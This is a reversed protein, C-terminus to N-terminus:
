GAVTEVSKTLAIWSSGDRDLVQFGDSVTELVRRVARDRPTEPRTAGQGLIAQRERRDM